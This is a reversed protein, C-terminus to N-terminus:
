IIFNQISFNNLINTKKLVFRICDDPYNVCDVNCMFREWSMWGMPPTKALGNDLGQLKGLLLPLVFFIKLSM